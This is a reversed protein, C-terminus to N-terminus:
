LDFKEIVEHQKHNKHIFLECGNGMGEMIMGKRNEEMDHEVICAFLGTEEKVPGKLKEDKNWPHKHLTICNICNECSYEKILDNLIM